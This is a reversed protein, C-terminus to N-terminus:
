EEDRMRTFTVRLHDRDARAEWGLAQWLQVPRHAQTRWWSSRLVAEEPLRGGIITAIETFPLTVEDAPCAALYDALREFPSRSGGGRM